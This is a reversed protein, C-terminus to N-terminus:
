TWFDYHNVWSLALRCCVVIGRVVVNSLLIFRIGDGIRLPFLVGGKMASGM